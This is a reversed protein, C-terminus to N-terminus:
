VRNSKQYLLLNFNSFMVVYDDLLWIVIIQWVTIEMEREYEYMRVFSDYFKICIDQLSKWCKIYRENKDRYVLWRWILLCYVMINIRLLIEYWHFLMVIVEDFLSQFSIRNMTMALYLIRRLYFVTLWTTICNPIVIAKKIILFDVSWKICSNWLTFM